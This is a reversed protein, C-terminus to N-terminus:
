PTGNRKMKLIKAKLAIKEFTRDPIFSEIKYYYFIQIADGILMKLAWREKEIKEQIQRMMEEDDVDILDDDDFSSSSWNDESNKKRSKTRDHVKRYKM